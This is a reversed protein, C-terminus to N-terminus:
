RARRRSPPTTPADPGAPPTVPGRALSRGAAVPPADGAAGAAGAVGAVLHEAGAQLGAFLAEVTALTDADAADKDRRMRAIRPFRLAFGSRHRPSRQIVDFAVEIVITPEVVRYRGHTSVTHATFWDTMEALEADTLGTYAKGITVLRDQTEDRVAFTWDSLVGHRKGHGVEVGVVVCDLTALAKKMKLWGLGRRGPAYPSTPDKVMLGENRRARAATFERELAEVSDVSVLHSLAFRGGTGVAPLDLGVLRDRRETLPTDLLPAIAGDRPGLALVDFAVYVVPVASLLAASPTKRGLRAQLTLFPLVTGDAWAVVEGDLIGDWGLPVAAEAVEPFQGTVDNLDRSFLRVADGRRHLQVRVGDYKDEVWVTPGLRRMIKAADEAPSALMSGVPRFPDLTATGLAGDRALVATRGLDGTLMRARTVAAPPRDFAEAIAAELLGDRLGIRLEGTVIRVVFRATLADCRRLLAALVEAKERAVGTAAIAAFAEAVDRLAPGAAPAGAAPAGAADRLAPGSGGPDAGAGPAEPGPVAKTAAEEIVLALADGPDSTRDYARRLADEGAGTAAEVAMQMGRWGLGLPERATGPLPRGALFTAATALDDGADDAALDRLYAAITARKESTRTTAAVRAAVDAWDRMSAGRGEDRMGDMPVAAITYRARM